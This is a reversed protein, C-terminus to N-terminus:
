MLVSLLVNSLGLCLFESYNAPSPIIFVISNESLAREHKKASFNRLTWLVGGPQFLLRSLPFWEAHIKTNNRQHACLNDTLFFVLRFAVRSVIEFQVQFCLVDSGFNRDLPFVNCCRWTSSLSHIIFAASFSSSGAEISGKTSWRNILHFDLCSTINFERAIVLSEVTSQSENTNRRPHATLSAIRLLNSAIRLM